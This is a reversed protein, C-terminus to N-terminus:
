ARRAAARLHCPPRHPPPPSCGVRPLPMLCSASAPPPAGAASAPPTRCPEHSTRAQPMISTLLRTCSQHYALQAVLIESLARQPVVRQAACGDRLASKTDFLSLAVGAARDCLDGHAYARTEMPSDRSLSLYKHHANDLAESEDDFHKAARVAAAISAQYEQLPEMSRTLQQQLNEAFDNMQVLADQVNLKSHEGSSLLASLSASDLTTSGLATSMESISQSFAQVNHEVLRLRQLQGRLEARVNPGDQMAVASTMDTAEQRDSLEM